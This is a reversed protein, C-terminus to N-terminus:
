GETGIGHMISQHSFASWALERFRATHGFDVGEVWLKHHILEHGSFQFLFFNTEENQFTKIVNPFNESQM